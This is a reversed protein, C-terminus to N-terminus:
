GLTEVPLEPFTDRLVALEGPDAHLILGGIALRSDPLPVSMFTSKNEGSVTAVFGIASALDPTAAGQLEAIVDAATKQDPPASAIVVNASEGDDAVHLLVNHPWRVPSIDGTYGPPYIQLTSAWVPDRWINIVELLDLQPPFPATLFGEKRNSRVQVIPM